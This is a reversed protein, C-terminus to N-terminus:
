QINHEYLWSSSGFNKVSCTLIRRKVCMWVSTTNSFPWRCCGNVSLCIVAASPSCEEWLILLCSPLLRVVCPSIWKHKGLSKVFFCFVGCHVVFYFLGSQSSAKEELIWHGKDLQETSAHPRSCHPCIRLRHNFCWLLTFVLPNYFLCFGQKINLPHM